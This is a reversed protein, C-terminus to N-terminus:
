NCYKYLEQLDHLNVDNQVREWVNHATDSEERLMRYVGLFVYGSDVLNKMFTLRIENRHFLVYYIESNRQDIQQQPVNEAAWHVSITPMMAASDGKNGWTPNGYEPGWIYIGQFNPIARGWYFDLDHIGFLELYDQPRDFHTGRKLIYDSMFEKSARDAEAPSKDDDAPHSAYLFIGVGILLIIIVAVPVHIKWNMLRQWISLSAPEEHSIFQSSCFTDWDNYGVFQALVDLTAKRPMSQDQIYGWLRKLTTPSVTEHLKDFIQESLFDFDRPTKMKRDVTTEILERLSALAQEIQAESQMM